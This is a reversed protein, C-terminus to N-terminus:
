SYFERVIPAFGLRMWEAANMEADMLSHFTTADRRYPTAFLTGALSVGSWLDATRGERSMDSVLVLFIPPVTQGCESCTRM